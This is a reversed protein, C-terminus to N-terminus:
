DIAYHWSAQPASPGAAWAAVNEATTSTEAAEMTHIVVVDVRPRNAWTFNRAQVFPIPDLPAPEPRPLPASGISIRTAQDVVGTAPLNRERQWSVTANHTVTGFDGDDN